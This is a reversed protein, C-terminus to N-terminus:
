QKTGSKKRIDIKLQEEAIDIMANLLENKLNAERLAKQLQKIDTPMPSDDVSEEVKKKEAKKGQKKMVWHHIRKHPMGYKLALQRYSLHGFLYENVIKNKLHDPTRGYM